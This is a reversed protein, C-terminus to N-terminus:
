CKFGLFSNPLHLKENPIDVFFEFKGKVFENSNIGYKVPLFKNIKCRYSNFTSKKENRALIRKKILPPIKNLNPALFGHGYIINYAKILSILPANEEEKENFLTKETFRKKNNILFFLYIYHLYKYPFIVENGNIHISGDENVNVDNFTPEAVKIKIKLGKRIGDLTEDIQKFYNQNKHDKGLFKTVCTHCVVGSLLKMKIQEEFVSFNNICVTHNDFHYMDDDTDSKLHFGSL